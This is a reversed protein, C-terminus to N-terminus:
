SPVSAAAGKAGPLARKVMTERVSSPRTPIRHWHDWEEELWEDHDSTDLVGDQVVRTGFWPCKGLLGMAAGLFPRELGDRCAVWHAVHGKMVALDMLGETGGLRLCEYVLECPEVKVVVPGSEREVIHKCKVEIRTCLLNSTWLPRARTFLGFRGSSSVELIVGNALLMFKMPTHANPEKRRVHLSAAFALGPQSPMAAANHASFPVIREEWAHAPDSLDPADFAEVIPAGVSDLATSPKFLEPAHPTSMLNKNFCFQPIPESEIPKISQDVDM